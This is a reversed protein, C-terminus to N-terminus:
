EQEGPNSNGTVFGFDIPEDKVFTATHARGGINDSTVSVEVSHFGFSQPTLPLGVVYTTELRKAVVLDLQKTAKGDNSKATVNYRGNIKQFPLNVVLKLNNHYVLVRSHEPQFDISNPFTVVSGYRVNLFRKVTRLAVTILQYRLRYASLLLVCVVVYIWM